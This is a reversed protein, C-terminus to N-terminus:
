PITKLYEITPKIAKEMMEFDHDLAFLPLFIKTNGNKQILMVDDQEVEHQDIRILDAVLSRHSQVLEEPIYTRMYDWDLEQDVLQEIEEETYPNSPERVLPTVAASADHGLYNRREKLWILWENFQTEKYIDALDSNVSELADTMNTKEMALHKYQTIGLNLVENLLRATLDFVGALLFYYNGLHYHIEFSVIHERDNRRREKKRRQTFYILTLRGYDVLHIKNSLARIRETKPQDFSSSTISHNLLKIADLTIGPRSSYMRIWHDNRVPDTFSWTIGNGALFAECQRHLLDSKDAYGFEVNYSRTEDFYAQRQLDVLIDIDKELAYERLTTYTLGEFTTSDVLLHRPLDSNLGYLEIKLVSGNTSLYNLLTNLNAVFREIDNNQNGIILLKLEFNFPSYRLSPIMQGSVIPPM